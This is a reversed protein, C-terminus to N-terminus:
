IECEVKRRSGFGLFFFYCLELIIVICYCRLYNGVEMFECCVVFWFLFLMNSFWIFFLFFGFIFVFESVCGYVVGFYVFSELWVVVWLILIYFGILCFLRFLYFFLLELSGEWGCLSVLKRFFNKFQIEVIDKNSLDLM